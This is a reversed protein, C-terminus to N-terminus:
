KVDLLVVISVHAFNCSVMLKANITFNYKGDPSALGTPSTPPALFTAIVMLEVWWCM